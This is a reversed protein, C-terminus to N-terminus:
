TLKQAIGYLHSKQFPLQKSIGLKYKLWWKIHIKYFAVKSQYYLFDTNNVEKVEFKHNKLITSLREITFSQVHQMHHHAADCFPCYISHAKLDENFPTTVVIYGGPKLLKYIIELTNKLLDSRLHEITEILLIVDFASDKFNKNLDSFHIIKKVNANGKNKELSKKVSDISFDLGYIENKPNDKSLYDIMTGNGCGYDLIEGKLELKNNLMKIIGFGVEETFYPHNETVKYDWFRQTVEDTWDNETKYVLEKM